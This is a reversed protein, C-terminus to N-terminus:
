LKGKKIKFKMRKYARFFAQAYDKYIPKEDIACGLTVVYGKNKYEFKIVFMGYNEFDVFEKFRQIYKALALRLKSYKRKERM